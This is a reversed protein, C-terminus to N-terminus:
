GSGAQSIAFVMVPIADEGPDKESATLQGPDSDAVLSGTKMCVFSVCALFM